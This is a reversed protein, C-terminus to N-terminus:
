SLGEIDNPIELRAKPNAKKHKQWEASVEARFKLAEKTYKLKSREPSINASIDRIITAMATSDLATSKSM